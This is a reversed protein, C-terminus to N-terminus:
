GFFMQEGKESEGSYTASDQWEQYAQGGGGRRRQREKELHCLPILEFHFVFYTSVKGRKRLKETASRNKLVQAILDRM